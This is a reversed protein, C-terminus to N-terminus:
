GCLKNIASRLVERTFPKPIILNFPGGQADGPRADSGTVLIVPTKPNIRKIAEALENGSMGPMERDTVVVSWSEAEYRKLGRPGNEATHVEHGEAELYLSLVQRMAADDDVVLIRLRRRGPDRSAAATNHDSSGQSM